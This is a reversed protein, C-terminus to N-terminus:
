LTALRTEASACRYFRVMLMLKHHSTLAETPCLVTTMATLVQVQHNAAAAIAMLVVPLRGKAQRRVASIMTPNRTHQVKSIHVVTQRPTNVALLQLMTQTVAQLRRRLCPLEAPAGAKTRKTIWILTPEYGGESAAMGALFSEDRKLIDHDM